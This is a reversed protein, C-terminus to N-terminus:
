EKAGERAVWPDLCELEGQNATRRRSELLKRQSAFRLLSIRAYRAASAARSSWHPLYYPIWLREDLVPRDFSDEAELEYGARDLIAAPRRGTVQGAM